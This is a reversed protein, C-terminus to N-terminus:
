SWTMRARVLWPSWREAPDIIGVVTREAAAPPPNIIGSRRRSFLIPTPCGQHYVSSEKISKTRILRGHLITQNKSGIRSANKYSVLQKRQMSPFEAVQGKGEREKEIEPERWTKLIHFLAICIIEVTVSLRVVHV